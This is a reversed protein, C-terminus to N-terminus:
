FNMVKSVIVWDDDTVALIPHVNSLYISITEEYGTCSALMLYTTNWRNQIDTAFRRPKIELSQCFNIFDNIRANSSRIFMIAGRNTKKIFM